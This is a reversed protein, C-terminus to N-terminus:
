EVEVSNLPSSVFEDNDVKMYFLLCTINEVPAAFINGSMKVRSMHPLIIEPHDHTYWFERSYERFICFYSCPCNGQCNPPCRPTCNKWKIYKIVRGVCPANNRRLAVFSSEKLGGARSYDQSSIIIGEKKLRHFIMISGRAYNGSIERLLLRASRVEDPKESYTGVAFVNVSIEDAIKCSNKKYTVTRCFHKVVSDDPLAEILIPMEMFLKVSCCIQTAVHRSGHFLKGLVGNLSELFFTSYVWAPGLDIVVEPLHLMQHVNIGLFRQGYMRSFTAVYETLLGTAAQIQDMSISDQCLLSLGSVLKCHHLFYDDPMIGKLVFISYYLLFLKFHKAKWFTIGKLSRLPNEVFSPPKLNRIRNDIVDISDALSWPCNRFKPDLWLYLLLKTIGLFAGHLVDIAMGRILDVLLFFLLTPGKVGHVAAKKNGARRLELAQNAFERTQDHTRSVMNRNYPYTQVSSKQLPMREGADLCKSCGSEGNYQKFCMFKAKAPLDCTACLFKGRVTIESNDPLKFQYGTTSFVKMSKHLPKLFVNPNPQKKGFWLGTVLINRPLIRKKYPLENIVGCSPWVSGNESCRFIQLGDGWWMLSINNPNRLFGNNVQELYLRGDYIDEINSVNKKRHPNFRQQLDEYFRPRKYMTQLQCELPMDIFFDCEGSKKCMPCQSEKSAVPYVCNSCYYHFKLIATGDLNKFYKKLHYITRKCLSNPPCHLAVLELIRGLMRSSIHESSALSFISMLSEHLTIGAGDYILQNGNQHHAVPEDEESSENDCELNDEEESAESPESDSYVPMEGGIDDVESEESESFWIDSSDSNSDSEPEHM